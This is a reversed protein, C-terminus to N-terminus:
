FYFLCALRFGNVQYKPHFNAVDQPKLNYYNQNLNLHRQYALEFNLSRGEKLIFGFGHGVSLLITSFETLPYYKGNIQSTPTTEVYDIGKNDELIMHQYKIEVPIYSSINSRRADYEYNYRVGFNYYSPKSTLIGLDSAVAVYHKRTFYKGITAQVSVAFGECDRQKVLSSPDYKELGYFYTESLGLSYHLGISDRDKIPKNRKTEVIFIQNEVFYDYQERSFNYVHRELDQFSISGLQSDYALIQGKLVSGDKLHIVDYTEYRTSDQSFAKNSLM